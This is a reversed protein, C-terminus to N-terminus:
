IERRTTYASSFLYVLIMAILLGHTLLTILFDSSIFLTLIPNFFVTNIFWKPLSRYQQIINLIFVALLAYLLIGMFGMHMYGSGFMGTNAAGNDGIYQGIVLPPSVDYPYNLFYKFISNSWYIFEHSSFFEFHIFNLQAPIFFARRLLISPLVIEKTLPYYVFVLLSIFVLLSYILITDQYKFRDFYYFGALLLLSFLVLKHGSYGFIIIQICIFIIAYLYKRKLLAVSILFVNLVKTTWSNLYGFLGSTQAKGYEERIGYVKSLDFNINTIGTVLAYHVLVLFTIVLSIIIAINKSHKITKLHIKKTSLFFVIMSFPLIIMYFGVTKAGGFAYYTSTPVILLLFVLLMMLYTMHKRKTYLLIFIIIIAIWSQIYKSLDFDLAFGMYSFLVVIFHVYSYDLVIKFLIIGVIDFFFYKNIKYM